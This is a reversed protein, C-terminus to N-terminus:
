RSEDLKAFIMRGATTQLVSTVNVKVKQGIFDQGNDVVVMTGDDLYGVGQTFEKGEKIIHVNMEEGPLVVPKLAESLENINLVKVGELEAVKNLNFDNTFVKAGQVKGLKVLKADVEKIEPFDTEDIKVPIDIMKQIKNLVDLGRRGRNRKLGDSSDAIKQLEKLVFRPIVLTGEIFGAECIDAIRGDIIVSTDLLKDKFIIEEQKGERVQPKGFTFMGLIDEKKNIAIVMGLYGFTLCLCFYLYSLLFESSMFLYHIPLLSAIILGIMLGISAIVVNVGQTRLLGIELLIIIVGFGSGALTGILYQNDLSGIFYGAATSFLVFLVRGFIRINSVYKM